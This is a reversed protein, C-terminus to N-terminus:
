SLHQQLKLRGKQLTIAQDLIGADVQRAGSLLCIKSADQAVRKVDAHSSGRLVEACHTWDIESTGIQRLHRKLLEEIQGTSPADFVVVEDFRRWLAPDLMQEHNTAAITLADGRFSDLMQLFANM